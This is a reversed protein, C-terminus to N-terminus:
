ELLSQHVFSIAISGEGFASVVRKINGARVDCRSLDTGTKIFGQTDLAICGNLWQTSPAAGTMVFVQRIDRNESPEQEKRWSVRELHENGDLATLEPGRPLFCVTVLDKGALPAIM